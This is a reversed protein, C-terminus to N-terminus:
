YTPVYINSIKQENDVFCHIDALGVGFWVVYDYTLHESPTEADVLYVDYFHFGSAPEFFIDGIITVTKGELNRNSYVKEWLEDISVPRNIFLLILAGISVLFLLSIVVQFGKWRPKFQIM